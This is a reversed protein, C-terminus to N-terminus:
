DHLFPCPSGPITRHKDLFFLYNTVALSMGFSGIGPVFAAKGKGILTLIPPDGLLIVLVTLLCCLGSALILSAKLRNLFTDM